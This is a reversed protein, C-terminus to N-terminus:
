CLLKEDFERIRTTVDRPLFIQRKGFYERFEKIRQQVLDRRQAKTLPENVSEWVRTYDAVAYLYARLLAYVEAVTEAVKEHLRTFRITNLQLEHRLREIAADTQARLETEFRKTDRTLVKELLSKGLLGLVALLAANGGFALLITQWTEM